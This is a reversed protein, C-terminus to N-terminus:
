FININNKNIIDKIQNEVNEPSVYYGFEDDYSLETIPNEIEYIDCQATM